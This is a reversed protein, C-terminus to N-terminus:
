LSRFKLREQMQSKPMAGGDDYMDDIGDPIIYTSM